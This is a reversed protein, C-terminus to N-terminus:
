IPASEGTALEALQHAVEAPSRYYRREDLRTLRLLTAAGVGHRFAAAMLDARTTPYTVVGLLTGLGGNGSARRDSSPM